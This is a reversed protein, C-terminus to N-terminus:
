SDNQDEDSKLFSKVFLNEGLTRPPRSGFHRRLYDSFMQLRNIRLERNRIRRTANCIRVLSSYPDTSKELVRGSYLTGTSYLWQLWDSEWYLDSLHRRVGSSLRM